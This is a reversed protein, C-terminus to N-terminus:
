CQLLLLAEVSDVRAPSPIATRRHALVARLALLSRRGPPLFTALTQPAALTIAGRAGGVYIYLTSIHWRDHLGM